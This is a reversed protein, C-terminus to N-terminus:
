ILFGRQRFQGPTQGVIRRFARTFNSQSSFNLSLAIDLLSRDGQILLSKARELREASVYQHPAQGTSAKFARAFHFRSLCAESAM